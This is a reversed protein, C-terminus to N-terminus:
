PADSSIVNPSVGRVLEFRTSEESTMFHFQFDGADADSHADEDERRHMVGM